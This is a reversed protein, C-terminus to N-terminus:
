QSPLTQVWMDNKYIYRWLFEMEREEGEQMQESGDSFADYLLRAMYKVTTLLNISM